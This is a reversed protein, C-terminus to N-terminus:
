RMTNIIGEIEQVFECKIKDLACKMMENEANFENLKKSLKSM